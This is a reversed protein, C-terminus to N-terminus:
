DAAHAFYMKMLGKGKVRQPEREEYAFLDKTRNYTEESVNVKMENSSSEMRSAINVSDGFIDYIYKRSGVIGAVVSGSHVGVRMRWKIRSHENRNKLYELCELGSQVIKRAHDPDPEPLGCVAMYADGITKIRTCGYKEIICDFGCFLDSLEGILYEPSLVSSMDTFDVLDTFLISVQDFSEPESMGKERLDNVVRPPLINHLLEDSKANADKLATVNRYDRITQKWHTFSLIVTIFVLVGLNLFQTRDHSSEYVVAVAFQFLMSVLFFTPKVNFLAIVVLNAITWVLYGESVSNITKQYLCLYQAMTIACYCLANQAALKGNRKRVLFIAALPIVSIFIYASYYSLAIWFRDGRDRFALTVVTMVLGFVLTITLIQTIRRVNKRACEAQCEAPMAYRERYLSLLGSFPNRINM